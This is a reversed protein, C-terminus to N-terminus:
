RCCGGAGASPASSASGWCRRLWWYSSRRLHLRSNDTLDYSLALMPSWASGNLRKVPPYNADGTIRTHIHRAEDPLDTSALDNRRTRYDPSNDDTANEQYQSAEYSYDFSLM